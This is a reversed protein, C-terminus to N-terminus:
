PSRRLAAMFARARAPAPGPSKPGAVGAMPAVDLVAVTPGRAELVGFVDSRWRHLDAVHFVSRIGSARALGPFDVRDGRARGAPAAPTPQAGTVEYVGNDLVVTILNPPDLASITVLSGLNMLLGGDGTLVIVRRDPLALALGLGLATAQGMSSPVFIWDLPHTGLAMWERAAGMAAVVVDDDRRVARLVELAAVLDMM